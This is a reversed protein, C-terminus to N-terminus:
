ASRASASPLAVAPAWTRQSSGNSTLSACVGREPLGPAPAGGFPLWGHVLDSLLLEVRGADEAADEGLLGRHLLELLRVAARRSARRERQRVRRVLIVPSLRLALGSPPM